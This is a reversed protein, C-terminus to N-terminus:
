TELYPRLTDRVRKRARHVRMKVADQSCGLVEGIDRYRMGELTGMVFYLRLNEPLAAVATEVRRTLEKRAFLDDPGPRSSPPALDLEELGEFSLANPRARRLEALCRNTAIRYLWTGFTSEARFTDISRFASVFVDQTLDEADEANGIMNRCLGYIRDKYIEFVQRFARRDGQQCAAIISIDAQDIM